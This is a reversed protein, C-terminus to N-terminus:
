RPEFDDKEFSIIETKVEYNAGTDAVGEFDSEVKCAPLQNAMPPSNPTPSIEKKILSRSSIKSVEPSKYCMGVKKQDIAVGDINTVKQSLCETKAKQNKQPASHNSSSLEPWPLKRKDSLSSLAESELKIKPFMDRDKIKIKEQLSAM